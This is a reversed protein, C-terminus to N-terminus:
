AASRRRSPTRDTTDRATQLTELAVTLATQQQPVLGTFVLGSQYHHRRDGGLTQESGRIGTWVIRGTLRVHGLASPLDVFCLSGERLPELAEIRAGLASLDLLRALHLELEPGRLDRPVPLRTEQRRDPTETM